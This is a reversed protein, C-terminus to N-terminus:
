TLTELREALIGERLSGDSVVIAEAGFCDMAATAIAVGPVILDARGPELCPLAGRREVSLSSLRALQRSVAARTLRYGQVREAAYVDLGLDLAALTTVTGATGVLTAVDARAIVSPIEAALQARVESELDRYRSAEVPGPFPYREALPVVGLRLSTAAAVGGDRWLIFETSGGGIDFVVLPARLDRLGAFVGRVTLRAEEDGSVIKVPARCASALAAAFERGNAAERVASTAVVLVDDANLRRAREAYEVVAEATRAMPEHGLRGSGALGQGLRTVRQDQDLTRWGPGGDVEVLLYRVTNSGVDISALRVAHKRPAARSRRPAGLTPPNPPWTPAGM